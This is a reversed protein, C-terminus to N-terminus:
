KHVASGGFTGKSNNNPRSKPKNNQTTPRGTNAPRNNRTNKNNHDFVEGHNRTAVPATNHRVTINNEKHPAAPRNNAWGAYFSNSHRNRGGTYTVYVTPRSRYFYNRNTYRHYVTFHWAGNHWDLPRYFYDMTTYLNFQYATLVYSLDLNRRSWYVGNVDYRSNVSYFYDFNIEYVADYQASNLGLEYAMKDSLFLAESRAENYTMATASIAITMMVALTMMKKM